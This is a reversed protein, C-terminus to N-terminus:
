SEYVLICKMIVYLTINYDGSISREKLIVCSYDYDVALKERTENVANTSFDFPRLKSVVESSDYNAVLCFELCFEIQLLVNSSESNKRTLSTM